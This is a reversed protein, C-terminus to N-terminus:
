GQVGWVDDNSNAYFALCRLAGWGNEVVTTTSFLNGSYIVHYPGSTLIHAKAMRGYVYVSQDYYPVAFPWACYTLAEMEGQTAAGFDLEALLALTGAHRRQLYINGDRWVTIWLIPLGTKDTACGFAYESTPLVSHLANYSWSLGRDTTHLLFSRWNGGSQYTALAFAAGQNGYDPELWHITLDTLAPADGWTDPPDDVPTREFWVKGSDQSYFIKNAPALYLIAQDPNTTGRSTPWWPDVCGAQLQIDAGSYGGNRATWDADNADRYYCGTGDSSFTVLANLQSGEWVPPKRTSRALSVGTDCNVAL